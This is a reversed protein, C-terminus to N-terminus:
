KFYTKFWQIQTESLKWKSQILNHLMLIDKKTIDGPNDSIYGMFVPCIRRFNDCVQDKEYPIKAFDLIESYLGGIGYVYYGSKSKCSIIEPKKLEYRSLPAIKDRLENAFNITERSAYDSTSEGLEPGFLYPRVFEHFHTKSCIVIAKGSKLGSKKNIVEENELDEINKRIVEVEESVENLEEMTESQKTKNLANKARTLLSLLVSKLKSDKMKSIWSILKTIIDNILKVLGNKFSLFFGEEAIMMDDCYDIFNEIASEKM